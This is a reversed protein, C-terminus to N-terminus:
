CWCRYWGLEVADDAVDIGVWSLFMLMLLLMLVLM